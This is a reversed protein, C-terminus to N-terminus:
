LFLLFRVRGSLLRLTCGCFMGYLTLKTDQLLICFAETTSAIFIQTLQFIGCAIPFFLRQYRMFINSNMLCVLWGMTLSAVTSQRFKQFAISLTEWWLSSFFSFQWSALPFTEGSLLFFYEPKEISPSCWISQYSDPAPLWATWYIGLFTSLPTTTLCCFQQPNYSYLVVPFFQLSM